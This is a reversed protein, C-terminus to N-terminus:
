PVTRSALEAALKLMALMTGVTAILNIGLGLVIGKGMLSLDHWKKAMNELEKVRPRLGQIDKQPCGDVVEVLREVTERLDGNVPIREGPNLEAPTM